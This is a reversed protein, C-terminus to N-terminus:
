PYPPTWKGRLAFISADRYENTFGKGVDDVFDVAYLRGTGAPVEVYDGGNIDQGGRIDTLKPVLLSMGQPTVAGGLAPYFQAALNGRRGYTLQCVILSLRPPLVIPNAGVYSANDWINCRLNM